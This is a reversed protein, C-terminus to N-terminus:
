GPRTLGLSARIADLVADAANTLADRDADNTIVHDAVAIKEHLPKQAAIRARAEAEGLGDRERMRAVQVEEPAAVVVLPRFADALGNEVLLAAEYCALEAGEAALRALVDRSARAILPHVIGNLAARREPSAFVLAGLKTRDLSGDPLLVGEGFAAVVAALGETGRAVVDRALADADVVPVGRERFRKGVTSKGSAIGGTLGFVHM